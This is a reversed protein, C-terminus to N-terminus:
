DAHGSEGRINVTELCSLLKRVEDVKNQNSELEEELHLYCATAELENLYDSLADYCREFFNEEHLKQYDKEM